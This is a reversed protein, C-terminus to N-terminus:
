KLIDVKNQHRNSTALAVEDNKATSYVQPIYYNEFSGLNLDLTKASNLQYLHASVTSNVEGAKPYKYTMLKPYLNKGYIPINIEPVKSEDSKVFILADSGKSWQYFDAHGFEEEYVWDGIGNIISNKKGDTTIQTIKGSALDQYYLNNDVVFAVKAADPSFKPEQVFNGNNLSIIKGSKLDKVDFKGLFSHRYIPESEKQLLIKSEDDSFTYSEFGGEVLTGVKQTTKYSYKVIGEREIVAYNEGDKLSAIGSIGKGRYYGSYIKDLTIEQAFAINAMVLFCASILLKKM